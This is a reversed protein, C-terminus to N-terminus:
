SRRVWIATIAVAPLKTLPSYPGCIDLGSRVILRIENPKELTKTSHGTMPRGNVNSWHQGTLLNITWCPNGILLEKLVNDLDSM